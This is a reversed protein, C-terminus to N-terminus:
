AALQGVLSHRALRAEGEFLEEQRGAGGKLGLYPHHLIYVRMHNYASLSFPAIFVLAM